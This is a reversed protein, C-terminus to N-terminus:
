SLELLCFGYGKLALLIGSDSRTLATGRALLPELKAHALESPLAADVDRAAPNLAVLVRRDGQRRVYVLPYGGDRGHLFEVAGDSGLAPIERRLRLLARVHNLLSRPDAEQAAVTPRSKRRDVPLYLRDPAATSFGAAPGDGWQMPTRAGTRDYGGEKSPLREQFAMGIEDGYYLFPIGPMTFLFAYAVDLERRSRNRSIRPIDHNGTPLAIYGRTAAARSEERWTDLFTEASGQGAKQFYSSGGRAEQRFLTTYAPLGFHLLFDIHFGADIGEHPVGWEAILAAGPYERALMAHVERWYAKTERYDPDNKVISFACDVRFGDCGLDLWFRMVDQIMARVERPGRATVPQQWKQAPDPNAFGYNLSPQFYFFNYVYHGDHEAYGRVLWYKDDRFNKSWIYWDRTKCPKAKCAAKFGPHEISTHGAVLDLIVRLGRKHAERFLRRADANSGYRPAVKYFDSIDYGADMFPSEFIPNLWIANCGLSKIYDLRSTIGPLDGIGDGNSDQFSPPFIQYFVADKLWAPLHPQFAAPAADPNEADGAAPKVATPIPALALDM